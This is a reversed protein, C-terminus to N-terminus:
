VQVISERFVGLAIRDAVIQLPDICRLPRRVREQNKIFVHLETCGAIFSSVQYKMLMQELRAVHSLVTHNMKIEYIMSHLLDQDNRDPMVIQHQTQQWLAHSEFLRRYRSGNTCVLLHSCSSSLVNSLAVDLLSVIKARMDSPLQELLLHITMCCVVIKSVGLSELTALSAILRDLLLKERGRAFIESRDPYSPDSLLYVIPFEQEKSGHAAKYISNLFAASALPGLGGLVGWIERSEDEM